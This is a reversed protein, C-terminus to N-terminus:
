LFTYSAQFGQFQNSYDSSFHLLMSNGRTIVKSFSMTGCYTGMLPSNTSVGDYVQLYDYRCYPASELTFSYMILSVRKYPPPATIVYSCDMNPPYSNPYGPSTINRSPTFYTGGCQVSTYSAKFGTGAIAGDTVFEVLMLNTSSILPPIQGTGCIKGLMVPSSRSSGDYITIYDSICNNSSQVDFANFTMSVQGSPVRILFVCDANSPYSGPYNASTVTGSANTFLKSCVDCQYLRNIKSVDLTSLGYRQGIPVNANPIPVITNKGTTNSYSYGPYHMVSSYDYELGLNDTDKKDFFAINDPSIYQYNIHVYNDRDSRSHEHVFGLVHNLEHQIVGYYICGGKGLSVQQAGGNVGIYSWCGDLPQIAIYDDEDTQPIFQVCTLTAFEQMAAMILSAENQSYDSSITYPVNVIGNSDKPWLCEKCNIASRSFKHAIDGQVHFNRKGKNARLIRGFVDDDNDPVETDNQEVHPFVIQIPFSTACVFLGFLLIFSITSSMM